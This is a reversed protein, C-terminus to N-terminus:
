RIYTSRKFNDHNKDQMYTRNVMQFNYVKDVKDILGRQIVKNVTQTYTNCKVQKGLNKDSYFMTERQINFATGIFVKHQSHKVETALFPIATFKVLWPSNLENGHSVTTVWQDGVM